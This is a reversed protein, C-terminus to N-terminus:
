VAAVYSGDADRAIVKLDVLLSVLESCTSADLHWRDQMEIPSLRLEPSSTWAESMERLLAGRHDPKPVLVISAISESTNM